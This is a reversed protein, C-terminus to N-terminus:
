YKYYYGDKVVVRQVPKATTKNILVPTTQTKMKSKPSVIVRGNFDIPEVYSYYQAQRSARYALFRRVAIDNAMDDVTMDGDIEEVIVPVWEVNVFVTEGDVPAVHRQSMLMMGTSTAWSASSILMLGISMLIVNISRLYLHKTVLKFFM